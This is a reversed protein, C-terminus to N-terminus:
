LFSFRHLLNGGRKQKKKAFLVYDSIVSLLDQPLAYEFTDMNNPANERPKLRADRLSAKELPTCSALSKFSVVSIM